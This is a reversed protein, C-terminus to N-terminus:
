ALAEYVTGVVLGFVLHLMLFGMVTLLPSKLAFAGPAALQGSKMLPHVSPLMGLAFGVILWHVAGFVLGWSALGSTVDFAQYFAAHIVAFLIGMVAHMMLGAAYGATRDRAVMSGEMWLINMTMQRPMAAIGMYLLVTMVATGALGAAVANGLNLEM